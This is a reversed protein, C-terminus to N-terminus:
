EIRIFSDSLVSLFINKDSNLTDGETVKNFFVKESIIPPLPIICHANKLESYRASSFLIRRRLWIAPKRFSIFLRSPLSMCIKLHAHLSYQKNRGTLCPSLM